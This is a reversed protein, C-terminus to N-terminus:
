KATIIGTSFLFDFEAPALDLVKVVEMNRAIEKLEEFLGCLKDVTEKAYHTSMQQVGLM